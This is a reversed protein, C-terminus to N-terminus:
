AICTFYLTSFEGSVTLFSRVFSLKDRENQNVKVAILPVSVICKSVICTGAVCSSEPGEELTGLKPYVPSDDQM